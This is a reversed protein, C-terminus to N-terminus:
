KRKKRTTTTAKKQKRIYLLPKESCNKTGQKEGMYDNGYSYFVDLSSVVETLKIYVDVVLSATPLFFLIHYAMELNHGLVRYRISALHYFSGRGM